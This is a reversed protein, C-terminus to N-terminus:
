LLRLVDLGEEDPVLRADRRDRRAVAAPVVVVRYPIDNLLRLEVKLVPLLLLVVLVLVVLVVLVLGLLVELVVVEVLDPLGLGAEAVVDERLQVRPAGPSLLLEGVRLDVVLDGDAHGPRGYAGEHLHAVRPAHDALLADEADLGQVHVQVLELLEQGLRLEELPVLPPETVDHGFDADVYADLPLQVRAQLEDGAEPRPLAVHEPEIQLRPAVVYHAPLVDEHSAVAHPRLHELVGGPEEFDAGDLIEVLLEELPGVVRGLVEEVAGADVGFRGEGVLPAGLDALVGEALVHVPSLEVLVLLSHPYDLVAGVLDLPLEVLELHGEPVVLRVVGHVVDGPGGARGQLIEEGVLEVRKQAVAIVM